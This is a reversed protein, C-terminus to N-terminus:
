HDSVMRGNLTYSVNLNKNDCVCHLRAKNQCKLSSLDCILLNLLNSRM